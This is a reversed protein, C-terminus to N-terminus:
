PCGYAGVRPESPAMVRLEFQEGGTGVDGAGHIEARAEHAAPESCVARFAWGWRAERRAHVASAGTVENSTGLLWGTAAVFQPSIPGRLM